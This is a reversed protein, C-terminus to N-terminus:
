PTPRPPNVPTASGGTAAKRGGRVPRWLRWGLWAALAAFVAGVVPLFIALLSGGLAVADEVLSVVPTGVGLTSATVAPRATAKVGHVGLATVLGVVLWVPAPVGRVIGAEAAFLLAGAAPRVATQIVDNVHDAGPVKDVVLEVALLVALLAIVWTQSLVDFPAALHIVGARGLGSVLLLPIYANLGACGSLGFASLINLLAM